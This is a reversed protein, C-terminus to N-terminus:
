EGARGADDDPGARAGPRHGREAPADSRDDPEYYRREHALDKNVQINDKIAQEFRSGLRDLAAIMTDQMAAIIKVRDDEARQMRQLYGDMRFLVFYLLVGAVVTPVGVQTTLTVVPGLWGPLPAPAPPPASPAGPGTM